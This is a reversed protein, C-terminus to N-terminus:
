RRRAPIQRTYAAASPRYWCPDHDRDIYPLGPPWRTPHGNHDYLLQLYRSTMLISSSCSVSVRKGVNALIAVVTSTSRHQEKLNRRVVSAARHMAQGLESWVLKKVGEDDDYVFVLHDPNHTANYDYIEPLSLSGDLPPPVFTNSATAQSRHISPDMLSLSCEQITDGKYKFTSDLPRQIGTSSIGLGRYCTRNSCSRSIARAIERHSRHDQEELAPVPMQRGDIRTM